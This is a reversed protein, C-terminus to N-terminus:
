FYLPPVIRHCLFPPCLGASGPRAMDAMVAESVTQYFARIFSCTLAFAHIWCLRDLVVECSCQLVWPGVMLEGSGIIIIRGGTIKSDLMHRAGLQYSRCM